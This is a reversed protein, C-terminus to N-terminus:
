AEAVDSDWHLRHGCAYCMIAAASILKGCAPCPIESAGGSAAETTVAPQGAAKASQVAVVPAATATKPAVSPPNVPVPQPRVAMPAATPSVVVRGSVAPTPSSPISASARMSQEQALM